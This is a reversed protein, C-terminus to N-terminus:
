HTAILQLMQGSAPTENKAKGFFRSLEVSEHCDEREESDVDTFTRVQNTLDLQQNENMSSHNFIWQVKM